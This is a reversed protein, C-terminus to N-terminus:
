PSSSPAAALAQRILEQASDRLSVPWPRQAAAQLVPAIRAKLAAPADSRMVQALAQVVSYETDDDARLGQHARLLLDVAPEAVPRSRGARRWLGSLFAATADLRKASPGALLRQLVHTDMDEHGARALLVGLSMLRDFDLPRRAEQQDLFDDLFGALDAASVGALRPADRMRVLQRIAEHEM